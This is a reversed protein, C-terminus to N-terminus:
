AQFDYRCSRAASTTGIKSREPMSFQVSNQTRNACLKGSTRAVTPAVLLCSLRLSNRSTAFFISGSGASTTSSITWSCERQDSSSSTFASCQDIYIGSHGINRKNRTQNFSNIPKRGYRDLGNLAVDEVPATDKANVLFVSLAPHQTQEFMWLSRFIKMGSCCKELPQILLAIWNRMDM